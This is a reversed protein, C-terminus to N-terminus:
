LTWICYRAYGLGSRPGVVIQILVFEPDLMQSSFYSYRPGAGVNLLPQSRGQLTLKAQMWDLLVLFVQTQNSTHVPLLIGGLNCAGPQEGMVLRSHQNTEEMYDETEFSGAPSALLKAYCAGTFTLLM